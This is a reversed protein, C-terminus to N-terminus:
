NSLILHARPLSNTGTCNKKKKKSVLHNTYNFSLRPRPNHTHPLQVVQVLPEKVHTCPGLIKKKKSPTRVCGRALHLQM